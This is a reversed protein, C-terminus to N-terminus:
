NSQWSVIGGSVGVYATGNPGISLGSYYHNALAGGLIHSRPVSESRTIVTGTAFDLAAWYWGPHDQACTYICGDATSLQTVVSPSIGPAAKAIGSM